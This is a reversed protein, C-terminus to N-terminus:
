QSSMHYYYYLTSGIEVIILICLSLFSSCPQTSVVFRSKSQSAPYTNLGLQVWYDSILKFGFLLLEAMEALLLAVLTLTIRTVPSLAIAVKLVPITWCGTVPKGRCKQFLVLQM